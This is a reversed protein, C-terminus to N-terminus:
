KIHVTLPLGYSASITLKANKGEKKDAADDQVEQYISLIAYHTKKAFGAPPRISLRITQQSNGDMIFETPNVITWAALSNKGAKIPQHKKNTDFLSLRILKSKSNYNTFTISKDIARVTGLQLSQEIRPPSIGFQAPPLIPEDSKAKAEQANSTGVLGIFLMVGIFFHKIM